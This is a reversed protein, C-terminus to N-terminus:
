RELMKHLRELRRVPKLEELIVQKESNRMPINQAIYDAIYGPDQNALVHILIDQSMKPTLEVYHQFLEYTSRMLAETKATNRHAEPEPIEQVEAELYPKTRLIQVMRGRAQGEVMVRVNDGPMKLIQRISSITGITYLDKAEPHEVEIDKQGVLFIPCGINMAEELAQISAERAVEFHIMVNPFITLGRLAITPMTSTHLLDWEKSM